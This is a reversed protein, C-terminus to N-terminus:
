GNDTIEKSCGDCVVNDVADVVRRTDVIFDPLQESCSDCYIYIYNQDVKIEVENIKPV